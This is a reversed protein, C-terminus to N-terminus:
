SPQSATTRVFLETSRQPEFGVSTYLHRAAANDPAFGINIRLAGAAALRDVGATLIHRALGRRQHADQTRMPEVVGSTTVPDYWFMGWAAVADESDLVVLDLDPRYMSAQRLREDIDRRRASTMHHPRDSTESRSFLRYGDALPSVAPRKEADLRCLVLADGKRIFGRDLLVEQMVEDARDVELEVTTIGHQGLHALGTDVVHAIWARSADPM